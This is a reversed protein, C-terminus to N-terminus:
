LYSKHIIQMFEERTHNEEFKSQCLKKLKLNDDYNLTIHQHCQRCLPVCFNYKMSQKRSGASYIEHIDVALRGCIFCKNLDDTLISKRNRELKKLKNTKYKVKQM